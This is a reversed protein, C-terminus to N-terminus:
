RAEAPRRGLLHHGVDPLRRLRMLPLKRARSAPHTAAAPSALPVEARSGTATRAASPSPRPPRRDSPRRRSPRPNSTSPSACPAGRGAPTGVSSSGATSTSSRSTETANTSAMASAAAPVPLCRTRAARHPPTSLPRPRSRRRHKPPTPAHRLTARRGRHPCNLQPAPHPEATGPRQRAIRTLRRGHARHDLRQPFRDSPRACAPPPLWCSFDAM